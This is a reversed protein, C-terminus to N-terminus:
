VPIQKELSLPSIHSLSLWDLPTEGVLWARVPPLLPKSAAELAVSMVLCSVPLAQKIASANL